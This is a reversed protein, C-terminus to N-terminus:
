ANAAAAEKAKPEAKAGAASEDAKSEPEARVVLEWIARKGNDGLRNFAWRGSGKGEMRSGGLKVVRTYGGPRDKFRPAIEQFLKRVVEKEYLLALAQRYAHLGGRKGLTILHEAFGRFDKAKEVTTVIREHRFLSATLNRKMAERHSTTRSFKRGKKRHRM